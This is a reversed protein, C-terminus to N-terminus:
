ETAGSLLERVQISNIPRWSSGTPYTVVVNETAAAATFVGVLSAGYKYSAEDSGHVHVAETGNASVTM